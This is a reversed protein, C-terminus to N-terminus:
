RYMRLEARKRSVFMRLEASQEERSRAIGFQANVKAMQELWLARTEAADDAVLDVLVRDTDVCCAAATHARVAADALMSLGSPAVERVEGCKRGM